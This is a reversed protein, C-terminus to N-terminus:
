CVGQTPRIQFSLQNEPCRALTRVGLSADISNTSSIMNGFGVIEIRKGGQTQLFEARYNTAPTHTVNIITYPLHRRGPKSNMPQDTETLQKLMLPWNNKQVYLTSVRSDVRKLSKLTSFQRRFSVILVFAVGRIFPPHYLNTDSNCRESDCPVSFFHDWGYSYRHQSGVSSTARLRNIDCSNGNANDSDEVGSPTLTKWSFLRGM